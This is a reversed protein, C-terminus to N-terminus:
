LTPAWGGDVSEESCLTMGNERGVERPSPTLFNM